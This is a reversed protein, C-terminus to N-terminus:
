HPLRMRINRRKRAARKAAAVGSQGGGNFSPGWAIGSRARGGTDNAQPARLVPPLEPALERGLAGMGLAAALSAALVRVRRMYM